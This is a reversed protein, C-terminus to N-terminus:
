TLTRRKESRLRSAASAFHRRTHNRTAFIGAVAARPRDDLAAVIQTIQAGTSLGVAGIRNADIEALWAASLGTM